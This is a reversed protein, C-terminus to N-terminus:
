MLDDIEEIRDEEREDEESDLVSDDSETETEGDADVTEVDDAATQDDNLPGDSAVPRYFAKKPESHPLEVVQFVASCKPCVIPERNLDFFLATCSLCRRKVGLEAKAV